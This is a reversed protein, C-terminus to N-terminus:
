YGLRRCFRSVTAEAVGCEDALEAISMYQSEEQHTLLYDAAKKESATLDYYERSITEFVNNEHM